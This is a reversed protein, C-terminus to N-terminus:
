VNSGAISYPWGGGLQTGAPLVGCVPVVTCICCRAQLQLPDRHQQLPAQGHFCLLGSANGAIHAVALLISVVQLCLRLQEMAQM